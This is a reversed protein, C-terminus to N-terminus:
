NNRYFEAATEPPMTNILTGTSLEFGAWKSLRPTIAIHFHFNDSHNKYSFFEVNYSVHGLTMLSRIRKQFHAILEALEKSDLEEISSIHRFPFIWVEFPFRPAYPTFSVINESVEVSRYSKKESEIIQCYPCKGHEKIHQESKNLINSVLVPLLNYGIIQTHSHKISAGADHGVNKFISVYRISSDKYLERTRQIYVKFLKKMHTMSLDEIQHSHRGTEIIVEHSGYASSYTYFINDNKIQPDGIKDVAVFKNPIVRIIWRGKEELRMIEPPTMHENGPCFFCDKPKVVNEEETDRRFNDARQRRNAAIIVWRDLIYDKRLENM